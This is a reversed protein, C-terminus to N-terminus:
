RVVVFGFFMLFFFLVAFIKLILGRNSSLNTLYQLLQDIGGDVHAVADDVDSDIRVVLEEQEHVLRNFDHFMESIQGVAQEVERVADHRQRFYSVQSPAQLQVESQNGYQPGSPQQNDEVLPQSDQARQFLASEFSTSRDASYGTRRSCSDKLAKTRQQLVGKFGQSADVLKSRLTDVVTESHKKAQQGARGQSAVASERLESLSNLGDHLKALRQKVIMTLEGIEKAQDDFVNQEKMLRALRGITGSVEALEKSFQGAADYFRSTAVQDTTSSPPRRPAATPPQQAKVRDFIQYLELSRDRGAVM